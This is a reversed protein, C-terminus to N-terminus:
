TIFLEKGCGYLNLELYIKTWLFYIGALFSVDLKNVAYFVM